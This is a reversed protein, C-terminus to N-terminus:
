DEDNGSPSPNGIRPRTHDLERGRSVKEPRLTGTHCPNTVHSSPPIVLIAWTSAPDVFRTEWPPDFRIKLRPEAAEAPLREAGRAWGKM